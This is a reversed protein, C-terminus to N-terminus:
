AGAVGEVVIRGEARDHRRTGKRFQGVVPRLGRKANQEGEVKTAASLVFPHAMFLSIRGPRGSPKRTPNTSSAARPPASEEGGAARECAASTSSLTSAVPALFSLM